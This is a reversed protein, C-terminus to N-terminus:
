GGMRKMQASVDCGLDELENAIAAVRDTEPSGDVTEAAKKLLVVCQTLCALASKCLAVAAKAHPDEKNLEEWVRADEAEKIADVTTM